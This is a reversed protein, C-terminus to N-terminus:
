AADSWRPDNARQVFQNLDEVRFRLLRGLKVHPIFGCHTQVVLIGCRKAFDSAKKIHDIRKSRYARPVLGITQPGDYFDYVEPGAGTVVLSDAEIGYRDLAKRIHPIWKPEIADILLQCTPLGLDHVKLIAAEPDNQIPVILGLRMPQGAGGPQSGASPTAVVAPSGNDGIAALPRTLQGSAIPFGAAIGAAGTLQLFRRRHYKSM